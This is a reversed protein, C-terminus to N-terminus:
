GETDFINRISENIKAIYNKPLMSVQETLRSKDASLISDGEWKLQTSRGCLTSNIQLSMTGHLFFQTSPNELSPNDRCVPPYAQLAPFAVPTM